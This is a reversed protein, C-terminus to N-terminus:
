RGKMELVRLSSFPSSVGHRPEVQAVSEASDALNGRIPSKKRLHPDDDSREEEAQASHQQEIKESAGDQQIPSSATAASAPLQPANEPLPALQETSVLTAAGNRIIWATNRGKPALYEVIQM